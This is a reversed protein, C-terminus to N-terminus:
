GSWFEPTCTPLVHSDMALGIGQLHDGLYVLYPLILKKVQAILILAIFKARVFM